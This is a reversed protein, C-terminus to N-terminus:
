KVLPYHFVIKDLIKDRSSTSVHQPGPRMICPYYGQLAFSTNFCYCVLLRCSGVSSVQFRSLLTWFIDTWFKGKRLMFMYISQSDGRRFFFMKALTGQMKEWKIGQDRAPALFGLNSQRCLWCYSDRGTLARSPKRPLQKCPTCSSISM